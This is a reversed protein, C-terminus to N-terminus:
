IYTKEGKENLKAIKVDSVRKKEDILADNLRRCEAVLADIAKKNQWSDIGKLIIPSAATAAAIISPIAPLFGGEKNIHELHKVSLTIKEGKNIKNIQYRTLPLKQENQASDKNRILSVSLKVSEKRSFGEAIQELQDETLHVLRIVYNLQDKKRGQHNKKPGGKDNKKFRITTKEVEKITKEIKRM